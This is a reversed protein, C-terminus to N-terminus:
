CCGWRGRLGLYEHNVQIMFEGYVDRFVGSYVGTTSSGARTHFPPRSSPLSMLLTSLEARPTPPQLGLGVGSGAGSRGAWLTYPSCSTKLLSLLVPYHENSCNDLAEQYLYSLLRRGQLCCPPSLWAVCLLPGAM